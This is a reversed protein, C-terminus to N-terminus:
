SLKVIENVTTFASQLLIIMEPFIKFFANKIHAILFSIFGM